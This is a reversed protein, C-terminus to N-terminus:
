RCVSVIKCLPCECMPLICKAHALHGCELESPREPGTFDCLFDFDSACFCCTMFSHLLDNDVTKLRDFCRRYFVLEARERKDM